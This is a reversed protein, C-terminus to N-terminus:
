PSSDKKVKLLELKKKRSFRKIEAERGRAVNYNECIESYVLVLPKKYRTYRCRSTTNHNKIRKHVDLAVGVYLM